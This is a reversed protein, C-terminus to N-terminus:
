TLPQWLSGLLYKFEIERQMRSASRFEVTPQGYPNRVIVIKKRYLRKLSPFVCLSMKLEIDILKISLAHEMAERRLFRSDLSISDIVSM